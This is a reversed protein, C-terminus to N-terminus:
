IHKNLFRLIKQNTIKTRIETRQNETNKEMHLNIM